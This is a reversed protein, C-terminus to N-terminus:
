RQQQLNFFINVNGMNKKRKGNENSENMKEEEDSNCKFKNNYNRIKHSYMKIKNAHARYVTM